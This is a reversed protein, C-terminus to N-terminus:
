SKPAMVLQSQLVLGALRGDSARTIRTEWVMTTRGKHIPRTTAIATDGIPVAAIFNTKSELTTTTHGAPLNLVTAAAGATDALAMLAGGHLIDPRTCLEKRVPLRAEVEDVTARTFTIGLTQALPLPFDQLKALMEDSM